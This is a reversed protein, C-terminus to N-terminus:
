LSGTALTILTLFKKARDMFLSWIGPVPILLLIFDTLINVISIAMMFDRYNLCSGKVSLDWQSAIPLCQFISCFIGFTMWIMVSILTATIM